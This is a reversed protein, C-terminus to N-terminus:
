RERRWLSLGAPDEKRKRNFLFEILEELHQVGIWPQEPVILLIVTNERCKITNLGVAEAV